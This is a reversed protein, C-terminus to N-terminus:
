AAFVRGRVLAVAASEVLFVLGFRGRFNLEDLFDGVGGPAQVTDGREFRLEEVDGLAFLAPVAAGGGADGLGRAGEGREAEMRLAEGALEVLSKHGQALNLGFAAREFLLGGGMRLGWIVIYIPIM